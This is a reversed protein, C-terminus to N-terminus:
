LINYTQAPKIYNTFTESSKEHFIEWGGILFFHEIAEDDCEREWLCVIFGMTSVARVDLSGHSGGRGMEAWLIFFVGSGRL